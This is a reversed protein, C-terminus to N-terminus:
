SHYLKYHNRLETRIRERENESLQKRDDEFNINLAKEVDGKVRKDDMRITYETFMRNQYEADRLEEETQERVYVTHQMRTLFKEVKENRQPKNEYIISIAETKRIKNVKNWGYFVRLAM